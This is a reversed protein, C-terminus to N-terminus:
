LPNYSVVLNVSSTAPSHTEDDTILRQTVISKPLYKWGASRSHEDDPSLPSERAKGCAEKLPMKGLRFPCRLTLGLCSPLIVSSYRLLGTWSSLLSVNRAYFRSREDVSESAIRGKATPLISRSFLKLNRSSRCKRRHLLCLM